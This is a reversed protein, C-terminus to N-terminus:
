PSVFLWWGQCLKAPPLPKKIAQIFSPPKTPHRSLGPSGTSARPMGPRLALAPSGGMAGPNTGPLCLGVHVDPRHGGQAPRVMFPGPSNPVNHKSSDSDSTGARKRTASLQYSVASLWAMQRELLELVASLATASSALAPLGGMAGM